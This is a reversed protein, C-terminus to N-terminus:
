SRALKRWTAAGDTRRGPECPGPRGQTGPPLMRRRVGTGLGSGESEAEAQAWSGARGRKGPGVAPATPHWIDAPRRPARGRCAPQTLVKWPEAGPSSPSLPVRTLFVAAAGPSPAVTGPGGPSRRHAGAAGGAEGGGRLLAGQPGATPVPFFLLAPEWTATVRIDEQSAPGFDRGRGYVRLAPSLGRDSAPCSM